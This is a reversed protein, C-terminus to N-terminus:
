KVWCFTISNPPPPSIFVKKNNNSAWRTPTTNNYSSSYCCIIISCIVWWWISIITNPSTMSHWASVSVPPFTDRQLQCTFQKSSLAPLFIICFLFSYTAHLSPPYLSHIFPSLYDLAASVGSYSLLEELYPQLSRDDRRILVLHFCLSPLVSYSHRSDFTTVIFICLM